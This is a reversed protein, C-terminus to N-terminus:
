EWYTITGGGLSIKKWKTSDTLPNGINYDLLSQYLSAGDQTINIVTDNLKYEYTSSYILVGALNPKFTAPEGLGNSTLVAGEMGEADILNFINTLADFTGIVIDDSGDFMKWLYPTVSIDLWLTGSVAYSPRQLGSHSSLYNEQMGALFDDMLEAGTPNDSFDLVNQVM